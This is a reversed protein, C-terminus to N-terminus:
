FIEPMVSADGNVWLLPWEPAHDRACASRFAERLTVRGDGNEDAHVPRGDKLRKGLLAECFRLPFISYDQNSWIWAPRGPAIFLTNPRSADKLFWRGWCQAALVATWCSEPIHAKLLANFEEGGVRDGWLRAVPKLRGALRELRGHDTIFIFLLDGPKMRLGIEALARDLEPRTAADQIEPLGDHDIDAPSPILRGFGFLGLFAHELRDPESPAGGAYLVRINQWGLAQLTCNVLSINNWYRPYNKRPRVGGNILLAWTGPRATPPQSFLWRNRLHPPPFGTGHLITRDAIVGLAVLCLLGIGSIKLFRGLRGPHHGVKM